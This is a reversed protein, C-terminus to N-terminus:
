SKGYVSRLLPILGLPSRIFLLSLSGVVIPSSSTLTSYISYFWGMDHSFIWAVCIIKHVVSYGLQNRRIYVGFEPPVIHLDM